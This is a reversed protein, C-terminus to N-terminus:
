WDGMFQLTAKLFEPPLLKFLLKAPSITLLLLPFETVIRLLALMPEVAGTPVLLPVIGEVPISGELM